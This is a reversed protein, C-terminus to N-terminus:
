AVKLDPRKEKSFNNRKKRNRLLYKPYSALSVKGIQLIEDGNSFNIRKKFYDNLNEDRHHFTTDQENKQFVSDKVSAQFIFENKDFTSNPDIYLERRFRRNIINALIRHERTPKSLFPSPYVDEFHLAVNGLSSLVCAVNSIWFSGLKAHSTFYRYIVKSTLKHTLGMGRAEPGICTLGLHLIEGMKGADLIYSSCFAIAKGETNRAVAIILREFESKEESFCQYNPLEELCTSGIERLEKQLKDLKSYNLKLGPCDYIDIFFQNLRLLKM